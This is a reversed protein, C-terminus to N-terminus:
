VSFNEDTLFHLTMFDTFTQLLSFNTRFQFSIIDFGFVGEDVGGREGAIFACGSCDEGARDSEEDEDTGANIDSEDLGVDGFHRM